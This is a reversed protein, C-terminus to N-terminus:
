AHSQCTKVLIFYLVLWVNHAWADAKRYMSYACSPSRQTCNSFSIVVSLVIFYFFNMILHMCYKLQEDLTSKLKETVVTAQALSLRKYQYLAVAQQKLIDTLFASDDISDIARRRRTIEADSDADSVSQSTPAVLTPLFEAFSLCNNCM